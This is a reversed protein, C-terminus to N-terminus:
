READPPLPASSSFALLHLDLSCAAHLHVFPNTIRLYATVTFLTVTLLQRAIKKSLQTQAGATGGHTTRAASRAARRAARTKKQKPPLVSFNGSKRALSHNRAGSRRCGPSDVSHGSPVFPLLDFATWTPSRGSDHPAPVAECRCPSEDPLPCSLMPGTCAAAM